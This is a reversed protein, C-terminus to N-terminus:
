KEVELTMTGNACDHEVGKVYYYGNLAGANSKIKHGKEIYPNDVAKVTRTYEPKSHKKLLEKAEKKAKKSNKDDQDRIIIEQLTGYKETNEKMSTLKKPAKDKKGTIEQEKYISVKTVMGDM